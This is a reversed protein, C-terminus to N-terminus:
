EPVIALLSVSSSESCFRHELTRKALLFVRIPRSQAVPRLEWFEGAFPYITSGDLNDRDRIHPTLSTVEDILIGTIRFINETASFPKTKDGAANFHICSM